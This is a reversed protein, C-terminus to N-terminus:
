RLCGSFFELWICVTVFFGLLSGLELADLLGDRM